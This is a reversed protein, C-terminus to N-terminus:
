AVDVAKERDNVGTPESTVVWGRSEPEAVVFDLGFANKFGPFAPLYDAEQQSPQINRGVNALFAQALKTEARPCVVALRIENGFGQKTLPYDFPRNNLIGRVPHADRAIATGSRNSFVLAPEP